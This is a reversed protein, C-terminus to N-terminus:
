SKHYYQVNRYGVGSQSVDNSRKGYHFLFTILHKTKSQFHKTELERERETERERTFYSSFGPGCSRSFYKDFDIHRGLWMKILCGNDTPCARVM